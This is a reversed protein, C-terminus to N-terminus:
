LPRGVELEHYDYTSDKSSFLRLPIYHRHKIVVTYPSRPLLEDFQCFLIIIGQCNLCMSVGSWRFKGVTGCYDYRYYAFWLNADHKTAGLHNGHLERGNVIKWAM